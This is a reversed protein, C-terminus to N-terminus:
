GALDQSACDEGGEWIVAQTYIRTFYVFAKGYVKGFADDNGPPVKYAPSRLFEYSSSIRDFLVCHMYM